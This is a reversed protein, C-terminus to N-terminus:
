RRRRTTARRGHPSPSDITEEDRRGGILACRIVNLADHLLVGEPRLRKQRLQRSVIAFYEDAPGLWVRSSPLESLVMAYAGERIAEEHWTLQQGSVNDPWVKLEIFGGRGGVSLITDPTGVEVEGWSAEIRLAHGPWAERVRRWFAGEPGRAM